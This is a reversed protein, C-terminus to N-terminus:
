NRVFVNPTDLGEGQRWFKDEIPRDNYIRDFEIQEKHVSKKILDVVVKDCMIGNQGILIIKSIGKFSVNVGQFYEKLRLYREYGILRITKTGITYDIYRIVKNSPLSNWDVNKVLEGDTFKINLM